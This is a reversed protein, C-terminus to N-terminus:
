YRRAIEAIVAEMTKEVDAQMLPGSILPPV